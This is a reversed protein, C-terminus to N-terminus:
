VYPSGPTPQHYISDMSEEFHVRFYISDYSANILEFTGKKTFFGNDHLITWVHVAMKQVCKRVVNEVDRNSRIVDSKVYYHWDPLCNTELMFDQFRPTLIDFVQRLTETYVQDRDLHTFGITSLNNDGASVMYVFEQGAEKIDVLFNLPTQQPTM